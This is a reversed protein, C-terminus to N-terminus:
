SPFNGFEQANYLFINKPFITSRHQRRKFKSELKACTKTTLVARRFYYSLYSNDNLHDAIAVKVKSDPMIVQNIQAVFANPTIFVIVKPTHNRNM